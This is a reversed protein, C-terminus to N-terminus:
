PRSRAFPMTPVPRITPSAHSPLGPGPRVRAVSRVGWLPGEQSVDCDTRRDALCREYALKRQEQEKAATEAARRDAAYKAERMAELDQELRSIRKKLGSADSSDHGTSIAANTLDGQPPLNSRIRTAARDAPPTGSYTVVGHDDVWKYVEARVESVGSLVCILMLLFTLRMFAM